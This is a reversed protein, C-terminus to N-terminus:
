CGCFVCRYRELRLAAFILAGARTPASSETLLASWAGCSWAFRAAGSANNKHIRFLYLRPAHLVALKAERFLRHVLATGEGREVDASSRIRTADPYPRARLVDTRAVLTGEYLDHPAVFMLDSATLHCMCADLVCAAKGSRRLEQVQLALRKPHFTDDDDWLACFEGRAAAM